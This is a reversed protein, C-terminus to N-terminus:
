PNELKPMRVIKSTGREVGKHLDMMRWQYIMFSLALCATLMDQGQTKDALSTMTSMIRTLPEAAFFGLVAGIRLRTSAAAHFAKSVELIADHAVPTGPEPQTDIVQTATGTFHDRMDRALLWRSLLVPLVTGAVGGSFTIIARAMGGQATIAAAFATVLLGGQIVPDKILSEQFSTHVAQGDFTRYRKQQATELM